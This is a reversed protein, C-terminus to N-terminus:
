HGRHETLNVVFQFFGAKEVRVGRAWEPVLGFGDLRAGRLGSDLCAQVHREQRRAARRTRHVSVIATRQHQAGDTTKSLDSQPQQAGPGPGIDSESM